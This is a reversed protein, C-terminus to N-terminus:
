ETNQKLLDTLQQETDTGPAPVLISWVLSPDQDIQSASHIDFDLRQGGPLRFHMPCVHNQKVEFLDWCRRFEESERSLREFREMYRPNHKNREFNTRVWAATYRAFQDWNLLRERFEPNLFVMNLVHRDQELAKGFDAMLLEASRNWALVDTSDNTIFCPYSLQNTLAQLLPIDTRADAVYSPALSSEALSFLYNQESDGLKLARGINLLIEQSPNLDKGQELWTYYTVSMNALYAVEERRLGPTRRRGPLPDIGSDEPRLRQRRSKIFEGLASSSRNNTM